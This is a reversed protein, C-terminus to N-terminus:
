VKGKFFFLNARDSGSLHFHTAITKAREGAAHMAMEQGTVWLGTRIRKLVVGKLKEKLRQKIRFQKDKKINKKKDRNFWQYRFIQVLFVDKM